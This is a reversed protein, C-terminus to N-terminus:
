VRKTRNESLRAVRTIFDGIRWRVRSGDGHQKTMHFMPWSLDGQFSRGYQDVKVFVRENSVDYSERLTVLISNMFFEVKVSEQAAFRQDM